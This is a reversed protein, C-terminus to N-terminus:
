RIGVILTNRNWKLIHSSHSQISPLLWVHTHTHTQKNLGGGREGKRHTHTHTHTHTKATYLSACACLIEFRSNLSQVNRWPVSDLTAVKRASVHLTEGTGTHINTHAYTCTYAFTRGHVRAHTRVYPNFPHTCPNAEVRIVDPICLVSHRSLSIYIHMYMYKYVHPQMRMCRPIYVHICSNKYIYIHIYIYIYIYIYIHLHTSTYSLQYTSNNPCNEMSISGCGLTICSLCNRIRNNRM